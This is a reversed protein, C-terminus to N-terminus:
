RRRVVEIDARSRPEVEFTAEYRSSLGTVRVTRQPRFIRVDIHTATNIFIQIEGSGDDIWVKDGYQRDNEIRTVTGEVTILHGLTDEGVAGTAIRLDRGPLVAVDPADAVIHLEQATVGLIGRVIVQQDVRLRLNTKTSIWIGATQDQIAFGEDGSSSRFRGSPVTVLGRVVVADGASREYVAAIPIYDPAASIALLLLAFIM